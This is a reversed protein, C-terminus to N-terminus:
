ESTPPLVYKAPFSMQSCQLPPDSISVGVFPPTCFSYLGSENIITMNRNQSGDHIAVDARDETDVHRNIDRSGNQYGLIDAV